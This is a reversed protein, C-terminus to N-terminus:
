KSYNHLVGGTVPEKVGTTTPLSLPLGKLSRVALYAFAQAELADGNWGLVDANQVDGLKQALSQMLFANHRGGGCIYWASKPMRLLEAAKRVAAATFESITAAADNLPLTYAATVDFHNRDLSKPAPKSFFPDNLWQRVRAEDVRGSLALKGGADYEQSTYKHMLDNILANGPGTDFAIIEGKAGLWTLNAVGGINLIALPKPLAHALAAHYLPVLPAGQGGEEVDRTRFDCVVDIGTLEALLAGNGIQVTVGEHPRHLTTQGHFGILEITDPTKERLMAVADAHLKTLEEEVEARPLEGRIHARLRNRFADDYHVTLSPGSELVSEGNTKIIAADIGDLSTGSMLGLSTYIKESAMSTDM